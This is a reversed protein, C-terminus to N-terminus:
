GDENFFVASIKGGPTLPAIKWLSRRNRCTVDYVDLGDTGVRVFRISLVPGWAAVMAHLAGLMRRTGAALSPAMMAYDPKGNMLGDIQRRLAEETGPSPRDTTIRHAIAAEAARAEADPIRPAHIEAGSQHLVMGIVHGEADTSFTFQAPVTLGKLFFESPSDPYIRTPAPGLPGAFYRDGRRSVAYIINDNMRYYGAFRDFRAPILAIETRPRHQDALRRQILRASPAADDRAAANSTTLGMLLPVVIAAASGAALLAKRVTTLPLASRNEMITEIRRKLHAGAAGAACVLSSPVYLACVKLIGDAYIAPDNGAHLVSEDCAREREEVLRGGLWWLLPHFWFLNTILTHIAATLNDRRRLHCLEHAEIAAMEERSLRQLVGEPLLLVPRWIGVLGPEIGTPTIKVPLGPTSPVDGAARVLANLRAWRILWIASLVAFGCTWVAFLLSTLHLRLAETTVLAVHTNSFPAAATFLPAFVVSEPHAAVFPRPLVQGLAALASFPLLFKASAAFWLGYRVAAGHKRFALTLLGLAAAFLSSQWLHDLVANM